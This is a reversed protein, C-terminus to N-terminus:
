VVPNTDTRYAMFLLGVMLITVIGALPGHKEFAGTVISFNYWTSISLFVTYTLELGSKMTILYYILATITAILVGVLLEPVPFLTNKNMFVHLLSFISGFVWGAAIGGLLGMSVEGVVRKHKRSM